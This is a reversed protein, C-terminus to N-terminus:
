CKVVTIEIAIYKEPQDEIFFCCFKSFEYQHKIDTILEVKRIRGSSRDLYNGVRIVKLHLCQRKNSFLIRLIMLYNM